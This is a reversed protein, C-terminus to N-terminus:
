ALLQAQASVLCGCGCIMGTGSIQVKSVSDRLVAGAKASPIRVPWAGSWVSGGVVRAREQRKEEKDTELTVTEKAEEM